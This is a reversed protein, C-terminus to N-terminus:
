SQMLVKYKGTLIQWNLKLYWLFEIYKVSLWHSIQILQCDVLRFSPRMRPICQRPWLVASYVKINWKCVRVKVIPTRFFYWIPHRRVKNYFISTNRARKAKCGQKIQKGAWEETRHQRSANEFLFFNGYSGLVLWLFSEGVFTACVEALQCGYWFIVNKVDHVEKSFIGFISIKESFNAMQAWNWIWCLHLVFTQTRRCPASYLCANVTRESTLTTIWSNSSHDCFHCLEPVKSLLLWQLKM